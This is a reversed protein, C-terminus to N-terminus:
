SCYQSVSVKGDVDCSAMTYDGSYSKRNSVSEPRYLLCCLLLCFIALPVGIEEVCTIGMGDLSARGPVVDTSFSVCSWSTVTDLTLVNWFIEPAYRSKNADTFNDHVHLELRVCYHIYAIHSTCMAYLRYVPIPLFSHFHSMLYLLVSSNRRSTCTWSWKVTVYAFPTEM